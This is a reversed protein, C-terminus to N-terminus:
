NKKFLDATIKRKTTDGKEYKESFNNKDGDDFEKQKKLTNLYSQKEEASADKSFL